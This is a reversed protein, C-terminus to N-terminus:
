ARSNRLRVEDPKLNKDAANGNPSSANANATNESAPAAAPKKRIQHREYLLIAAVIVTVEVVIGIFPWLAAWRDKVGVLLFTSDTGLINSVNCAFLGNQSINPASLRLTDNPTGDENYLKANEWEKDTLDIPRLNASADSIAAKDDSLEVAIPAFLWQVSDPTPYGSVRCSIRLPDGQLVRKPKSYVPLIPAADDKLNLTVSILNGGSDFERQAFIKNRDESNSVSISENNFAWSLKVDTSTLGNIVYKLKLHVTENKSRKLFQISEYQLNSTHTPLTANESSEVTFGFTFQSLLLFIGIVRLCM